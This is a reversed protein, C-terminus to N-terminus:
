NLTKVDLVIHSFRAYQINLKENKILFDNDRTILLIKENKVEVFIHYEIDTSRIRHKQWKESFCSAQLPIIDTIIGKVEKRQKFILDILTLFLRKLPLICYFVIILLCSIASWVMLYNSTIIISGSCLIFSVFISLIFLLVLGERIFPIFKKM